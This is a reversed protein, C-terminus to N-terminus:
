VKVLRHKPDTPDFGKPWITADDYTSVPVGSLMADTLDAGCLNAKVLFSGRFDAGVLRCRAFSVFGFMAVRVRMGSLDLDSLDAKWSVRSSELRCGPQLRILGDPEASWRTQKDVLCDEFTADTLDAERLDM